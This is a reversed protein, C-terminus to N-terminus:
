VLGASYYSIHNCSFSVSAPHNERLRFSCFVAAHPGAPTVASRNTNALLTCQFSACRLRAATFADRVEEAIRAMGVRRMPMQQVACAGSFVRRPLSHLLATQIWPPASELVVTPPADRYARLPTLGKLGKQIVHTWARGSLVRQVADVVVAMILRRVAAPGRPQFLMRVCSLTAIDGVVPFCPMESFPFANEAQWSIAKTTTKPGSPRELTGDRRRYTSLTTM